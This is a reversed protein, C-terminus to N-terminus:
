PSAKVEPSLHFGVILISSILLVFMSLNLVIFIIITLEIHWTEGEFDGVQKNVQKVGDLDVWTQRNGVGNTDIKAQLEPHLWLPIFAIEASGEKDLYVCKNRVWLFGLICVIFLFFLTVSIRIAKNPHMAAFDARITYLYITTLFCIGTVVVNMSITLIDTVPPLLPIKQLLTLGPIISVLSSIGVLIKATTSNPM